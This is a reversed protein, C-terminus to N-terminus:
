RKARGLRNVFSIGFGEIKEVDLIRTKNLHEACVVIEKGNKLTVKFYRHAIRVLVIPKIYKLGIERCNVCPNLM